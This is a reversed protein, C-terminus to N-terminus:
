LRSVAYFFAIVIAVLVLIGLSTPVTARKGAPSTQISNLTLGIMAAFIGAGMCYLSPLRSWATNPPLSPIIWFTFAGYMLLVLGLVLIATGIKAAITKPSRGTGMGTDSQASEHTNADV